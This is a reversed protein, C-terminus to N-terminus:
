GGGTFLLLLDVRDGDNLNTDLGQLLHIPVDNLNVLADSKVKDKESDFVHATIPAGYIKMLSLFLDRIQSGTVVDVEDFVRSIKFRVLGFYEVRIKM